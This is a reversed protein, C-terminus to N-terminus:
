SMLLPQGSSPCTPDADLIGIVPHLLKYASSDRGVEGEWTGINSCLLAESHM